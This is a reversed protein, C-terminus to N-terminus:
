DGASSASSGLRSSTVAGPPSVEYPAPSREGATRRAIRATRGAGNTLAEAAKTRIRTRTAALERLVPVVVRMMSLRSGPRNSWAIGCPRVRYGLARALALAEADFAWGDIEALNFVDEAADATFLKFGCFVDKLPEGMVLRCLLIFGISAARRRLPQHRSVQSDAANRAGAVIECEGILAEMAPLSVLSPACDADCMLRLEGRAALMGRRISFGKGRNRDNRLLRIRGDDLFSRMREATEDESANDVVIIEWDGGRVALMDRVSPVITAIEEAENYVPIIVSISLPGRIV